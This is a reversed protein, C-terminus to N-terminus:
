RRRDIERLVKIAEKKFYDKISRYYADPIKKKEHEIELTKLADTLLRKRLELAETSEKALIGEEGRRRVAFAILIVALFIAVVGAMIYISSANESSQQEIFEIWIQTDKELATLNSTYISNGGYKLPINGRPYDAAKITIEMLDTPYLITYEFNNKLTYSINLLLTGRSPIELGNAGLNIDVMGDHANGDISSGRCEIKCDSPAWINITGNYSGLTSAFFIKETVEGGSISIEEREIKVNSGPAAYSGSSLLLLAGVVFVIALKKVNQCYM